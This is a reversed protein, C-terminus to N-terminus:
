SSMLRRSRLLESKQLFFSRDNPRQWCLSSCWGIGILFLGIMHGAADPAETHSAIESGIAAIIAGIGILLEKSIRDAIRGILPSFAYMGVIHLSIMLGIILPDSKM